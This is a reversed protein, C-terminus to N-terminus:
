REGKFAKGALGAGAYRRYFPDLREGIVKEVYALGEGNLYDGYGGVKGKRTKYSEEDDVERASLASTGFANGAELRRMNDFRCFEVAERIIDESIEGYGIFELVRRLEGAPDAHLDEYSILLFDAPLYRNRAWINYFAVISEIGGRREHVYEEMTGRYNANRKTKQFYSSVLVDRPDRIMFIVKRGAYASKDTSLEEPLLFEPGGDHHQLIYPIRRWPKAFDRLRLPNRVNLGHHLALSKGILLALWTRGCKPYSILHIDARWRRWRRRCRQILRRVPGRKRVLPPM